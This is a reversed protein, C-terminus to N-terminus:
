FSAVARVTYNAFKNGEIYIVGKTKHYAYANCYAGVKKLCETSSWYEEDKYLWEGGYAVVTKNVTDYAAFLSQLEGIAPLYWSDGM